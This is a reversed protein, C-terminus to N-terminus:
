PANLTDSTLRSPLNGDDVPELAAGYSIKYTNVSFSVVDSEFGKEASTLASGFVCDTAIRLFFLM